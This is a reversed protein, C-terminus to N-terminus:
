WDVGTEDLEARLALRAAVALEDAKNQHENDEHGRVWIWSVSHQKVLRDLQVWLDGNLRSKFGAARWGRIWDRLYPYCVYQSDTTVVVATGIPISELSRIVALLEMRNNTTGHQHGSIFRLPAGPFSLVAGWGGIGPNPSCAGDTWVLVAEATM